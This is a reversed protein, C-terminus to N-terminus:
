PHYGGHVICRSLGLIVYGIDVVNVVWLVLLVREVLALRVLLHVRFMVFEMEAICLLLVCLM